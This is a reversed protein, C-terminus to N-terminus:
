VWWGLPSGVLMLIEYLKDSPDSLVVLTIIHAQGNVPESGRTSGM